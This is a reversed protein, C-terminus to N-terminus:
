KKVLKVSADYTVKKGDSLTLVYYETKKGHDIVKVHKDKALRTNKFEGSAWARSVAPPLAVDKQEERSMILNGTADYLAEFNGKNSKMDVKYYKMTEGTKLDVSETVRWDRNINTEGVMYYQFPSAGPFDKEAKSVLEGPVADKNVLTADMVKAPESQALVHSSICIMAAITLTKKM